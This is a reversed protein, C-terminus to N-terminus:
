YQNIVGNGTWGCMRCTVAAAIAALWHSQQSNNDIAIIVTTAHQLECMRCIM